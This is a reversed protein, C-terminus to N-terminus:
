LVDQGKARPTCVLITIAILQLAFDKYSRAYLFAREAATDKVTSRLQLYQSGRATLAIDHHPVDEPYCAGDSECRVQVSTEFQGKLLFAHRQAHRVSFYILDYYSALSM